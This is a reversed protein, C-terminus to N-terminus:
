PILHTIENCNVQLLIQIVFVVEKEPFEWQIPVLCLAKCM